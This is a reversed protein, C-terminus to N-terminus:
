AAPRSETKKFEAQYMFVTEFDASAIFNIVICSSELIYGDFDPSFDRFNTEEIHWHCSFDDLIIAKCADLVRWIRWRARPCHLKSDALAGIYKALDGSIYVTRSGGSRPLDNSTADFM